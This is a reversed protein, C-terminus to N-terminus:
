YTKTMNKDIVITYDAKGSNEKDIKSLDSQEVSTIVSIKYNNNLQKLFWYIGEFYDSHYAGNLHLFVNDKKLNKHIFYAMTADKIAQSEPLYKATHEEMETKLSSYSKLSLDINVPLPVIFQFAQKELKDLIKLGKHFVMNAYRRPINTAIYKLNKEKAFELVPKYDTTYNNWLKVESKFNKEAIKGSLYENLPLQDDAEFMEAGIILNEEKIKYLEKALELQLWHSIPNNHLEGFLIIDSEKLKDAMEFFTIEKGDSDFLNYAKKEQALTKGSFILIIFLIQLIIKTKNM